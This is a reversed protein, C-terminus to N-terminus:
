DSPNEEEVQIEKWLLFPQSIYRSHKPYLNSLALLDGAVVIFIQTYRVSPLGFFWALTKKSDM